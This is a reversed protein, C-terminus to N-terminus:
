PWPPAGPEGNGTLSQHTSGPGEMHPLRRVQTSNTASAHMFTKIFVDGETGGMCCIWARTLCLKDVEPLLNHSGLDIPHSMDKCCNGQITVEASGPMWRSVQDFNHMVDPLYSKGKWSISVWCGIHWTVGARALHCEQAIVFFPFSPSSSFFVDGHM